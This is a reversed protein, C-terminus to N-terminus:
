NFDGETLFGKGGDPLTDSDGAADYVGETLGARVCLAEIKSRYWEEYKMGDRWEAPLASYGCLAGCLAGAVAGNTDADGGAMVLKTMASKFTEKQLQVERLCWLASGLCKYVYGMGSDCLTLADLSEAYAHKEFVARDLVMDGHEKQMYGWGREVAANTDSVNRVEERCLGRILGSVVAVSVACRPDAHTVAGMHIAEAFTEEESKGMCIVGVPATRMLSGNPANTGGSQAWITHATDTPRALFDRHFVVRGVTIGIDISRRDLCRLGQQCWVKLRSAFDIQSFTGTRLYSLILLVTHDTDDTWACSEFRLRHSDEFMKTAPEVLVFQGSPYTKRAQKDTMFETYLGITDGLASGILAGHAKNLIQIKNM